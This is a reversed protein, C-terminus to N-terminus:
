KSGVTKNAALEAEKKHVRNGIANAIPTILVPALYRNVLGFVIITKAAKIGGICKNFEELKAESAGKSPRNIIKFKETFRDIKKDIMKEITYAMSISTACVAAQNIALTKRKKTDLKDNQLTQKIYFSSLVISGLAVLHSMLNKNFKEHRVTFDIVTKAAKTDLIKSILNKNLKEGLIEYRRIVADFWGKATEFFKSKSKISTAGFSVTNYIPRNFDKKINSQNNNLTPTIKSIQM